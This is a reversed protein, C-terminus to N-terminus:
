EEILKDIKDIHERYAKNVDDFADAIAKQRASEAKEGSLGKTVERDLGDFNERLHNKRTNEIPLGFHIDILIGFIDAEVEKRLSSKKCDIGHLLAHGLEHGGVSLIQTDALNRALHIEKKGDPYNRCFGFLGAGNIESEDEGIFFPINLENEAYARLGKFCRAHDKSVVGRNLIEPYREAPYNTQAIDFVTGIVWTPTTTSELEGSKVLAKEKKTCYKLKKTTGDPFTVITKTAPAIIKMGTQGRLVHIKVGDVEEKNWAAYKKCLMAGMNQAYIMILNRTSFQHFRSQFKLFEIMEEPNKSYTEIINLVFKRAEAVTTPVTYKEM